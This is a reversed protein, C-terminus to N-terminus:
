GHPRRRARRQGRTFAACAVRTMWAMPRSGMLAAAREWAASDNNDRAGKSAAFCGKSRRHQVPKGQWAGRGRAARMLKARM